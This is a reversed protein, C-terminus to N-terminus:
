SRIEEVQFAFGMKAFAQICEPRIVVIALKYKQGELIEFTARWGINQEFELPGLEDVVLLDCPPAAAIAQNGM